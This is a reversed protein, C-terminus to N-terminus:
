TRVSAQGRSLKRSAEQRQLGHAARRQSGEGIDKDLMLGLECWRRGRLRRGCHRDLMFGRNRTRISGCVPVSCAKGRDCCSIIMIGRGIGRPALTSCEHGTIWALSHRYMRRLYTQKVPRSSCFLAQCTMVLQSTLGWKLGAQCNATLSTNGYRILSEAACEVTAVSHAQQWDHGIAECSPAAAEPRSRKVIPVGWMEGVQELEAETLPIGQRLVIAGRSLHCTSACLSGSRPDALGRSRAM